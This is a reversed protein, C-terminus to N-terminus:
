VVEEIGERPAFGGISFGTRKGQKHLEFLEPDPKAMALVGFKGGTDFGFAKAVESTMPFLVATGRRKGVHMDKQELDGVMFDVAAELAAEETINDGQLDFYDEGDIKSVIAWGFVVGLADDAKLIEFGQRFNTDTDTEM